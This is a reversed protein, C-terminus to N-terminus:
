KVKHDLFMDPLTRFTKLLQKSGYTKWALSLGIIWAEAAAYTNKIRTVTIIKKDFILQNIPLKYLYKSSSRLYIYSRWGNSWNLVMKDTPGFLYKDWTWHKIYLDSLKLIDKPFKLNELYGGFFKVSKQGLIQFSTLDYSLPM